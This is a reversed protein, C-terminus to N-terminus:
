VLLLATKRAFREQLDQGRLSVAKRDRDRILLVVSRDANLWAVKLRSPMGGTELQIWDGAKLVRLVEDAELPTPTAHVPCDDTPTERLIRVLPMGTGQSAPASRADSLPSQPLVSESEGSPMSRRMRRLHALFLEDLFPQIDEDKLGVSRAGLTLTQVLSPIRRALQARGPASGGADLSWILDDVAQVAAHFQEGEPGDRLVASRVHRVWVTELFQRVSEPLPQAGIKDAILANVAETVAAEREPSPRHRVDRRNARGGAGQLQDRERELSGLVASVGQATRRLEREFQESLVRTRTQVQQAMVEIARVATELRELLPAGPALQEPAQRAAESLAALLRRLSRQEDSLYAPDLTALVTFPYQLRGVLPQAAPPITGSAALWEFAAQVLDFGGLRVPDVGAQQLRQRPEDAKIRVNPWGEPNLPEPASRAPVSGPWPALAKLGAIAGLAPPEQDTRRRRPAPTPVLMLGAAQRVLEPWEELVTGRLTPQLLRHDVEPELTSVAALSLLYLSWSPDAGAALAPLRISREGLVRALEDGLIRVSFPLDRPLQGVLGEVGLRAVGDQQIAKSRLLRSTAESWLDLARRIRDPADTALGRACLLLDERHPMEEQEARLLLERRIQELGTVLVAELCDALMERAPRLEPEFDLGIQGQLPTAGGSREPEPPTLPEFEPPTM